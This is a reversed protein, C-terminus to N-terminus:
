TPTNQTPTNQLHSQLTCSRTAHIIHLTSTLMIVVMVVVMGISHPYFQRYAGAAIESVSMGRMIGLDGLVESLLRVSLQHVQRMTVGPKIAALCQQHVHAVASYVTRQPPSFHGGIPWTRSIDSAFGYRECGADMLLLNQPTLVQQPPHLPTNQPHFNLNLPPPTRVHTTVKQKNYAYM